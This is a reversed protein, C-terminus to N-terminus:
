QSNGMQKTIQFDICPLKRTSSSNTPIITHTIWFYLQLRSLISLPHFFQCDHPQWNAYKTLLLFVVNLRWNKKLGTLSYGRFGLNHKIDGFVAQTQIGNRTYLLAQESLLDEKAQQRYRQLEFGVQIRCNGKAETCKPKLPHTSCYAYEYFRRKSFYGRAAKYYRTKLYVMPHQALCIFEEMNPDYSFNTSQFSAMEIVEPKRPPHQGKYLLKYKLFNNIQKKGLGAYNEERSYGTNGSINKPKTDEQLNQQEIHAIFHCTDDTFPLCSPLRKSQVAPQRDNLSM